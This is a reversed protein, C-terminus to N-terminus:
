CVKRKDKEYEEVCWYKGNENGTVIISINGDLNVFWDVVERELPMEFNNLYRKSRKIAEKYRSMTSKREALWKKYDAGPEGEYKVKEAYDLRDEYEALRNVFRIREHEFAKNILENNSANAFIVYASTSGVGVIKNSPLTGLLEKLKM